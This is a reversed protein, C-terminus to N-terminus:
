TVRFDFPKDGKPCRWCPPDPEKPRRPASQVRPTSFSHPRRTHVASSMASRPEIALVFVDYLLALADAVLAGAPSLRSRLRRSLALTIASVALGPPTRDNRLRLAQISSVEEMYVTLRTTTVVVDTPQPRAIHWGQDVCESYGGAPACDITM